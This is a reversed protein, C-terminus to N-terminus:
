KKTGGSDVIYIKEYNIMYNVFSTLLYFYYLSDCPNM